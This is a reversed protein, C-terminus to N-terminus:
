ARLIMRIGLQLQPSGTYLLHLCQLFADMSQMYHSFLLFYTFGLHGSCASPTCITYVTCNQFHPWHDSLLKNSFFQLIIPHEYYVLKKCNWCPLRVGETVQEPCSVFAQFTFYTNQLVLPEESKIHVRIYLNIECKLSCLDM